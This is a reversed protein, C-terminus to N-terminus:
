KKDKRKSKNIYILSLVIAIIDLVGFGVVFLLLFLFGWIEGFFNFDTKGFSIIITSFIFILLASLIAFSVIETQKTIFYFVICWSLFILALIVFISFLYEEIM